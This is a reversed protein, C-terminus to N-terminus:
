KEPTPAPSSEMKMDKRSSAPFEEDDDGFLDEVGVGGTSVPADAMDEDKQGSSDTPSISHPM